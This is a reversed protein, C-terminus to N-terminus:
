RQMWSGMSISWDIMTADDLGDISRDITADDFGDISFFFGNCESGPNGGLWVAQTDMTDM